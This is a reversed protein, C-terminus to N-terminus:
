RQYYKLMSKSQHLGIAQLVINHAQMHNQENQRNEMKDCGKQSIAPQNALYFEQRVAGDAPVQVWLALFHLSQVLYSGFSHVAYTYM